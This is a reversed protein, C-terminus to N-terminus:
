SYQKQMNLAYHLPTREASHVVSISFALQDKVSVKQSFSSPNQERWLKSTDTNSINKSLSPHIDFHLMSTVLSKQFITHNMFGIHQWYIINKLSVTLIESSKLKIASLM